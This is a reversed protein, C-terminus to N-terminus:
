VEIDGWRTVNVMGQKYLEEIVRLTDDVSLVDSLQVSLKSLNQVNYNGSSVLDLVEEQVPSM